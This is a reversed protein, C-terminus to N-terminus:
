KREKVTRNQEESDLERLLGLLYDGLGEITRVWIDCSGSLFRLLVFYVFAAVIWSYLCDFHLVSIGLFFADCHIDTSSMLM